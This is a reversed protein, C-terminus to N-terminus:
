MGHSFYFHCGFMILLVWATGTNRTSAFLVENQQDFNICRSGPQILAVSMAQVTAITDDELSGNQIADKIQATSEACENAANKTPRHMLKLIKTVLETDIILGDGDEDSARSHVGMWNFLGLHNLLGTYGLVVNEFIPPNPATPSVHSALKKDICIFIIFDFM